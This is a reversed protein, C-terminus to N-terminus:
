ATAIEILQKVADVAAEFTPTSNDQSYSTGQVFLDYEKHYEADNALISLVRAFKDQMPLGEFSTDNKARDDDQQMAAAVLRVFDPSDIVIDKLMALDHLHRVISPDDYVDGRVRDPIRWAIASMKDAANEVPNLCAIRMAEPPQKMLENIFSSVSLYVPPLHVRRAIVEIQIHPRLANTRTFHSEYDIDIAFFRNEDRARIHNDQIQLGATRLADVVAHKFKSLSKRNMSYDPVSVRFDIDESFRQILKHAKSLATGGSFIMEFDPYKVQSLIAIVQTVHWDKELLPPRIELEESARQLLEKDPLVNM